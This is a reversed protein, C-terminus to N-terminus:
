FNNTLILTMFLITEKQQEVNIQQLSQWGGRRKLASINNKYKASNAKYFRIAASLFYVSLRSTLKINQM